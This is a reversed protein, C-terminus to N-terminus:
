ATILLENDGTELVEGDTALLIENTVSAFNKVRFVNSYISGYSDTFKFYYLGSDLELGSAQTGQSIIQQYPISWEPSTQDTYERIEGAGGYMSNKIVFKDDNITAFDTIEIDTEIGTNCSIIKCVLDESTYREVVLNFSPFQNNAAILIGTKANNFQNQLKHFQYDIDNVFNLQGINARIIM